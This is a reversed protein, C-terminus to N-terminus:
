SAENQKHTQKEDKKKMAWSDYCLVTINGPSGEAHYVILTFRWFVVQYNGTIVQLHDCFLKITESTATLILM